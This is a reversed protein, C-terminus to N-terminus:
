KAPCSSATMKQKLTSVYTNMDIGTCREIDADTMLMRTCICCGHCVGLMQQRVVRDPERLAAKRTRECKKMIKIVHRETENLTNVVMTSVVSVSFVLALSLAARQATSAFIRSSSSTTM